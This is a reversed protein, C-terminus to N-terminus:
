SFFNEGFLNVEPSSQVEIDGQVSTMCALRMQNEHGVFSLCVMPDPSFPTKFKLWERLTMSNTNEAGKKILVRCTGCFGFGFCNVYRNVGAGIGNVGCNLNIGAKIAEGRLNAGQPVEIEKKENIFKITPM